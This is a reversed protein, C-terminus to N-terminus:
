LSILRQYERVFSLFSPKLTILWFISEFYKMAVSCFINEKSMLYFGLYKWSYFYCLYEYLLCGYQINRFSFYEDKMGVNAKAWSWKM